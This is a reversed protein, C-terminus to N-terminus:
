LRVVTPISVFPILEIVPSWLLYSWISATFIAFGYLNQRTGHTRNLITGGTVAAMSFIYRYVVVPVVM